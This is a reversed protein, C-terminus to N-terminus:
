SARRCFTVIDPTGGAAFPVIITVSRSPYTQADAIRSMAPLAAAGAALRLFQNRSLRM